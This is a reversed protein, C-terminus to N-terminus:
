ILEQDKGIPKLFRLSIIKHYMQVTKLQAEKDHDRAYDMLSTPDPRHPLEEAFDTFFDFM